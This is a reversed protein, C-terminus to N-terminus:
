EYNIFPLRNVPTKRASKSSTNEYFKEKSVQSSEMLREWKNRFRVTINFMFCDETILFVKSSTLFINENLIGFNSKRDDKIPDGYTVYIASVESM